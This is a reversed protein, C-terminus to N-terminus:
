KQLLMGSINVNSYGLFPEGDKIEEEYRVEFHNMYLVTNDDIQVTQYPKMAQSIEDTDSDPNKKDYALCKQAFDDIDLTIVEGTERMVFRFRTYDVDAYENYYTEYSEDTIVMNMSTYGSVDLEGVMQCCHIYYTELKTLDTTNNEQKELIESLNEAFNEGYIDYGAAITEKMEPQDYLYDYAGKLRDYESESLMGGEQVTQYYRQLLSLQWRNSVSYMNIGPVFVSIVLMGGLILLINERTGKRFHWIFLMIIEFIILMVGVYRNPTMGYDYIRVGISYAQQLILPAFVYPLISLVRSYRTDERYNEVMMWVPMGTCFLTSIIAYIENSPMEWLIVIKLIYLYVIVLACMTLIALIYQVLMRIFAGPDEEVDLFANLSAPVWYFGTVLVCCSVLLNGEGELFLIDFILSVLIIGILLVSYILYVKCLNCFVRLMYAEFNDKVKEAKRRYLLYIGLVFLLLVYGLAFRYTMDHLLAGSLGLFQTNNKLSIFCTIVSAIIGALVYACIKIFLNRKKYEPKDSEKQIFLTETFFSGVAFYFLLRFIIDEDIPLTINFEWDLMDIVAEYITVIFIAALTIKYCVLLDKYKAFYHQLKERIKKM